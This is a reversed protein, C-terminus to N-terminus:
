IQLEGAFITQAKGGLLTRDGNMEIEIMGGRASIQEAKMKTIGLKKAWYPAMITHASGTVPDEDIGVAPGFFRSVFDRENSDSAATVIIGRASIRGLQQFDPSLSAVTNETAVEIMYDTGDTGVFLPEIGLSDILGAPPATEVPPRCPFDLTILEGQKSSSLRGSLTHFVAEDTEKLRGSQWLVHSTALTAHGCLEVEAVPTFWRLHFPEELDNRPWVFATESLNMEAAVAQLWGDEKREEMLCVCAPNGSFPREAFADVQYIPVGM